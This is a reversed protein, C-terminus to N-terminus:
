SRFIGRRQSHGKATGRLQVLATGCCQLMDLGISLGISLNRSVDGGFLM